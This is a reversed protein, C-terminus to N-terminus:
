RVESAYKRLARYEESTRPRYLGRFYSRKLEECWGSEAFKLMPIREEFAPEDREAPEDALLHSNPLEETEGPEVGFREVYMRLLDDRKFFQVGKGLKAGDAKLADYLEQKTM